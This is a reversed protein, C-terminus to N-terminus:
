AALELRVQPAVPLPGLQVPQGEHPVFLASIAARAEVHARADDLSSIALATAHVEAETADPAVVTVALPGRSAPAGTAPDVLHHLSRDPGFRRRDRGSTAVGADRIRLTTLTRGPTRPDAVAIRWASGDAPAGFFAIDGGLDVYGGTLEPWARRMAALALEASFGKGIGGLDVAAGAEVRARGRDSDVFVRAGPRWGQVSQPPRPEVEDFTRDYGAAVLAPLITPDFRGSTARRARLSAELASLVRSDVEVWEGAAANLRSLDSRTNFRTLVRECEAVETRSAALARLANARESQRAYVAVACSTGMATFEQRELRLTM